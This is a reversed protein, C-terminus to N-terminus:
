IAAGQKSGRKLLVLGLAIWGLSFLAGFGVHATRAELIAGSDTAYYAWGFAAITLLLVGQDRQMRAGIVSIGALPLGILMVHLWWMLPTDLWVLSSLWDDRTAFASWPVAYAVGMVSGALGLMFGFRGIRGVTERCLAYLGAIAMYFLAPVVFNLARATEDFYWPAVDRHVYGWTAFLVGGLIAAFGGV